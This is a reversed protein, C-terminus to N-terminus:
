RVWWSRNAETDGRPTPRHLPFHSNVFELAFLCLGLIIGASICLCPFMEQRDPLVKLVRRVKARVMAIPNIKVM